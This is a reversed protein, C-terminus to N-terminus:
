RRRRNWRRQWFVKSPGDRWVVELRGARPSATALTGDIIVIGCYEM